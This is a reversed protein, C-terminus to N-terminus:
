SHQTDAKHLKDIEDGPTPIQNVLGLGVMAAVTTLGQDWVRVQVLMQAGTLPTTQLYLTILAISEVWPQQVFRYTVVSNLVYAM